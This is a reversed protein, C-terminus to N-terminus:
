EVIWPPNKTHGDYGIEGWCFLAIKAFVFSLLKRM